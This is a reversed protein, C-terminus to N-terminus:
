VAQFQAQQVALSGCAAYSDRSQRDKLAQRPLSSGEPELRGGEPEALHCSMM